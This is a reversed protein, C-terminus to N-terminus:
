CGSALRICYCNNHPSKGACVGIMAFEYGTIVEAEALMVDEVEVKM